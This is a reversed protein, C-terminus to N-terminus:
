QTEGRRKWNRYRSTCKNSCTQKNIPFEPKAKKSIDAGCAICRKTMSWEHIEHLELEKYRKQKM